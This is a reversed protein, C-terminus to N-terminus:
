TAGKCRGQKLFSYEHHSTKKRECIQHWIKAQHSLFLPLGHYETLSILHRPHSFKQSVTITLSKTSLLMESFHRLSWYKQIECLHNQQGTQCGKAQWKVCDQPPTYPNWQQLSYLLSLRLLWHPPPILILPPVWIRLDHEWIQHLM